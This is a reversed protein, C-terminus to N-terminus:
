SKKKIGKVAIFNETVHSSFYCRCIPNDRRKGKLTRKKKEPLTLYCTGLFENIYQFNKELASFFACKMSQAQHVTESGIGEMLKRKEEGRKETKSLM